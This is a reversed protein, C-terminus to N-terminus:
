RSPVARPGSTRGALLELVDESRFRLHGGITRLSPLKGAAAWNIVTRETVDFLVAVEHSRLLQQGEPLSVSRRLGILAPDQRISTPATAQPTWGVPPVPAAPAPAPAKRLQSLHGTMQRTVALMARQERRSLERLWRDLVAVVGLVTGASNRLPAAYVWRLNHPAVALACTTLGPYTALDTIELPETRRAVLNFLTPDNLGDRQDFGYSLTSWQGSGQPVSVLALPTQCSLAALLLIDAFVQGAGSTAPPEVGAERPPGAAVVLSRPPRAPGAAGDTEEPRPRSPSILARRLDDRCAFVYDRAPGTADPLAGALADVLGLLHVDLLQNRALSRREVELHDTLIRSDAVLVAAGLHAIVRRATRQAWESAEGEAGSIRVAAALLTPRERELELYSGPPEVPAAVQPPVDAWRATISTVADLSPAWADVGLREARLADPGFAPGWAVVPVGEGHAAAVVQAAQVLDATEVHTVVVAAPRGARIHAVLEEAAASGNLVEVACGAASALEGIADAALLDASSASGVVVIRTRDAATPASPAASSAARALARRAITAAAGITARDLEGATARQDLQQWAPILLSSILESIPQGAEVAQGALAVVADADLRELHDVLAELSVSPAAIM